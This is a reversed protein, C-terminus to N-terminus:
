IHGRPLLNVMWNQGIDPIPEVLCFGFIVFDSFYNAFTRKTFDIQGNM